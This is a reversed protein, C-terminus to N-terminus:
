NAEYVNNKENDLEFHTLLISTNDIIKYKKKFFTGRLQTIKSQM